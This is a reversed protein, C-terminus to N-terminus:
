IVWCQEMLSLEARRSGASANPQICHETQPSWFKQLKILVINPNKKKVKNKENKEMPM